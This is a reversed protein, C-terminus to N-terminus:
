CRSVCMPKLVDFWCMLVIVLADVDINEYVCWRSTEVGLALQQTVSDFNQADEKSIM